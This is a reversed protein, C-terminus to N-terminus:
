LVATLEDRNRERGDECCRKQLPEICRAIFWVNSRAARGKGVVVQSALAKERCLILGSVADLEVDEM